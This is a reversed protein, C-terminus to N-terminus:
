TKNFGSTFGARSEGDKVEWVIAIKEIAIYCTKDEDHMEMVGNQIKVIEGRVCSAGSCIVDVKKGIMSSLFEQM